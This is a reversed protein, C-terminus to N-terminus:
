GSKGDMIMLRKSKSLCSIVAGNDKLSIGILKATNWTDVAELYSKLISPIQTDCQQQNRKRRPRGRPTMPLCILPTTNDCLQVHVECLQSYSRGREESNLMIWGATEEVVIPDYWTYGTSNDFRNIMDSLLPDLPTTCTPHNSVKKVNNNGSVQNNPKPGTIADVDVSCKQAYRNYKGCLWLSEKVWM